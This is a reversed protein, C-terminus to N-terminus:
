AYNFIFSTGVQDLIKSVEDKLQEASWTNFRRWHYKAQKWLMEILNLEPSYTPLFCLCFRHDCMWIDLKEQSIAHHIRANDLVVLTIRGPESKEALRQLFAEAEAQKVSGAHLDYDLCGTRYNLAGLVNIRKRYEGADASHAQGVPSWSRQVNPLTSFGSEDM